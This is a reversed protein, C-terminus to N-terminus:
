DDNQITGRGQSDAITAGVPSTLNVNFTENPEVTGDGIVTISVNKSTVGAPFTVTGSRTQYDGPATATGNATAYNVTVTGAAAASLTVRFKFV